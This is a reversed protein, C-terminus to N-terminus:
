ILKFKSKKVDKVMVEMVPNHITTVNIDRYQSCLPLKKM